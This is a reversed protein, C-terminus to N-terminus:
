WGPQTPFKGPKIQQYYDIKINETGFVNLASPFEIRKIIYKKKESITEVTAEIDQRPYSYYELMEATRPKPNVYAPDCNYHTCSSLLILGSILIFEAVARHCAHNTSKERIIGVRPNMM